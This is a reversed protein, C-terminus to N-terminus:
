SLYQIQFSSVSDSGNPFITDDNFIDCDKSAYSIYAGHSPDNGQTCHMIFYNKNINNKFIMDYGLEYPSSTMYEAIQKDASVLGMVLPLDSISSWDVHFTYKDFSPNDDLTPELNKPDWIMSTNNLTNYSFMLGQVTFTTSNIFISKKDTKKYQWHGLLSSNDALVSMEIHSSDTQSIYPVTTTTSISDSLNSVLDCHNQTSSLDLKCNYLAMYKSNNGYGPAVLYINNQDKFLINKPILNLTHSNFNTNLEITKCQNTYVNQFEDLPCISVLNSKDQIFAIKHISSNQYITFNTINDMPLQQVICESNSDYDLPKGNEGLACRVLIGINHTRYFVFMNHPAPESAPPLPQIIDATKTQKSSGNVSIEVDVPSNQPANLPLTCVFNYTQNLAVHQYETTTCNLVSPTDILKIDYDEAGLTLASNSLVVNVTFPIGAQIESTSINETVHLASKAPTSNSGGGCSCILLALVSILSWILTRYVNLFIIKM